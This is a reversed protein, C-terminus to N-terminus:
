RGLGLELRFGLVNEPKVARIPHHSFIKSPKNRHKLGEVQMFPFPPYMFYIQPGMSRAVM